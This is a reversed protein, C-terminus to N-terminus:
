NNCCLMKGIRSALGAHFDDINGVNMKCIQFKEANEYNDAASHSDIKAYAEKLVDLRDQLINMLHDMIVDCSVELQHQTMRSLHRLQDAKLCCDIKPLADAVLQSLPLARVWEEIPSPISVLSVFDELDLGEDHSLGRSKFIESLDATHLSIGLSLLASKLSSALISGTAPDKHSEFTSKISAENRRKFGEEVQNSLKSRASTDLRDLEENSNATLAICVRKDRHKSEESM